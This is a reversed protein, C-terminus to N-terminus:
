ARGRRGGRGPRPMASGPSRAARRTGRSCAPPARRRRCAPAAADTRATARATRGRPRRTRTGTDSGRGGRRRRRTARRRAEVARDDVGARGRDGREDGLRDGARREGRRDRGVVVPRRDGLHAAPVAHEQDGVLDHGPEAAGPSPEADVVPADPGVDQRHPLTRRAPVEREPERRTRALHELRHALGPEDVPERPRVVADARRDGVRRQAAQGLVVEDVRARALPLPEQLRERRRELVIRDTPRRELADPQHDADLEHGVPRAPRRERALVLRGFADERGGAVRPQEQVRARTVDVAVAVQHHESRREHDGVVLALQDDLPGGGRDGDRRISTLPM